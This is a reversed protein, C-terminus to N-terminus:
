DRHEGTRGTAAVRLDRPSLGYEAKFARSFHASDTFGWRFAMATISVCNPRLLEDRSRELRRRRIWGGVTEGNEAFITHLTRLSIGHAAAIMPPRLEPDTLREEVTACIRTFLAAHLTQPGARFESKLSAALLELAAREGASKGVQDLTDWQRRL